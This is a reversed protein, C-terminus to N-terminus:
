FPSTQWWPEGSVSVACATDVVATSSPLSECDGIFVSVVDVSEFELIDALAAYTSASSDSRQSFISSTVDEIVSDLMDSGVSTTSLIDANSHDYDSTSPSGESESDSMLVHDIHGDHWAVLEHEFVRFHEEISDTQTAAHAIQVIPSRFDGADAFLATLFLDDVVDVDEPDDTQVCADALIAPPHLSSDNPLVTFAVSQADQPQLAEYSTRV